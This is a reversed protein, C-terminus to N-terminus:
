EFEDHRKGNSVIALRIIMDTLAGTHELAAQALVACSYDNADQLM